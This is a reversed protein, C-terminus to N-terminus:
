GTRDISLRPALRAALLDAPDDVLPSFDEERVTLARLQEIGVRHLRRQKNLREITNAYREDPHGNPPEIVFLPRGAAVTEMIMSMSDITAFVATAAGLYDQTIPRPARAYWVADAINQSTIAERLTQEAAPGTRRSTTILLRAGHRYALTSLAEGMTQWHMAMYKFGAGDGGILIAWLPSDTAAIADRLATGRQALDQRDILTPPVELVLNASHDAQREITMAATFHRPHLGRLSGCYLVGANHRRALLIAAFVARGGAVVILDPRDSPLSEISYSLNLLRTTLPEQTANLLATLPKRWLGSRLRVEIWESRVEYLRELALLVGRSQNYHGPKGDSIVWVTRRVKM